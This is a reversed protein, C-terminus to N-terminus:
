QPRAPKPDTTMTYGAWRDAYEKLRSNGTISYLANLLDIHIAHYRAAMHPERAEQYPMAPHTIYSLDYASLYGLDYYPLIHQLTRIGRKFLADADESEAIQSWDYLGLLTFMYGNLTYANPETPYELFFIYDELSPDLDSMDTMPGYPHQVQLFALARNGAEIYKKDGTAHYARAAASLFQGQAMGSTWGPKLPLTETYHRYTFPYRLAGDDGEMEIIKDLARIMMDTPGGQLHRSYEALAFQSLTVPNYYFSDGNKVKPLGKSDFTVRSSKKYKRNSYGFYPGISSYDVRNRDFNGARSGDKELETKALINWEKDVNVKPWNDKREIIILIIASFAIIFAIAIIFVRYKMEYGQIYKM